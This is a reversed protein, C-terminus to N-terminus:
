GAVFQDRRSLPGIEKEGSLLLERENKERAKIKNQSAIYSGKLAGRLKSKHLKNLQKPTLKTDRTWLSVSSRSVKLKSEIEKVSFGARRLAQAKEKELLKGAFGM